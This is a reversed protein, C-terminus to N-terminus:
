PKVEEEEVTFTIRFRKYIFQTSTISVKESLHSKIFEIMKELEAVDYMKRLDFEFEIKKKEIEETM